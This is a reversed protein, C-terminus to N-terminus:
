QAGTILRERLQFARRMLHCTALIRDADGHKGALRLQQCSQTALYDFLARYICGSDRFFERLLPGLSVGTDTKAARPLEKPVKLLRWTLFLWAGQGSAQVRLKVWEAFPIHGSAKEARYDARLFNTHGCYSRGILPASVTLFRSTQGELEYIQALLELVEQEKQSCISPLSHEDQSNLCLLCLAKAEEYRKLAMLMEIRYREEAEEVPPGPLLELAEEIQGNRRCILHESVPAVPCGSYELNQLVRCVKSLEKALDLRKHAFSVECLWSQKAALHFLREVDYMSLQLQRELHTLRALAETEARELDGEQLALRISEGQEPEAPIAKLKDVEARWEKSQEEDLVREIAPSLELTADRLRLDSEILDQLYAVIERNLIEMLQRYRFDKVIGTGSLNRSLDSFMVLGCVCPPLDDAGLRYSVGYRVLTLGQVAAKDPSCFYLLATFSPSELDVTKLFGVKNFYPLAEQSARLVLHGALSTGYAPAQFRPYLRKEDVLLQLPALRCVEMLDTLGPKRIIRESLLRFPRDVRFQSSEATPEAPEFRWEGERLSLIGGPGRYEAGDPAFQKAGVLALAFHTDRSAGSSSLLGSLPNQLTTISVPEGDFIAICTSEDSRIHFFTAKSAVAFALLEVVYFGAEPLSFTELKHVAQDLNLSFSGQSDLQGGLSELFQDISQSM